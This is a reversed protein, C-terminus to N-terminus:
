PKGGWYKSIEFSALLKDLRKNHAAYHARLWSRVEKPIVPPGYKAKRWELPDYHTREFKTGYAVNHPIGAAQVAVHRAWKAPAEFFAESAFILMQKRPFHMAWQQLHDDYHGHVVCHHYSNILVEPDSGFKDQNWWYHSICRAVPDRLLVILKVDPLTRKVRAPVFPAALYFPTAELLMDGEPAGKFVEEYYGLGKDWHRNFFHAEKVKGWIGPVQCLMNFLTSTGSRPAGIILLGPLKM